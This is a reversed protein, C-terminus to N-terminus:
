FEHIRELELLSRLRDDDCMEVRSEYGLEDLREERTADLYPLRTGQNRWEDPIPKRRQKDRRGLRNVARFVTDESNVNMTAFPDTRDSLSNLVLVPRNREVPRISPPSIDTGSLQKQLSSSARTEAARTVTSEGRNDNGKKETDDEDAPKMFTPPPELFRAGIALLQIQLNNEDLRRLARLKEDFDEWWADCMHGEGSGRASNVRANWIHYTNLGQQMNTCLKRAGTASLRSLPDLIKVIATCPLRAVARNWIEELAAMDKRASLANQCAVIVRSKPPLRDLIMESTLYSFNFQSIQAHLDFLTSSTCQSAKSSITRSVPRSRFVPTPPPSVQEPNVSNRLLSEVHASDERPRPGSICDLPAPTNPPVTPVCKGAESRPAGSLALGATDTEFEVTDDPVPGNEVILAQFADRQKATGRWTRKVPHWVRRHFKSVTYAWKTRTVNRGLVSNNHSPVNSIVSIRKRSKSDTRQLWCPIHSKRKPLSIQDSDATKSDKFLSSTHPATTTLPSV